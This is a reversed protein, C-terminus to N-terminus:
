GVFVQVLPSNRDVIKFFAFNVITTPINVFDEPSLLLTADRSGLLIRKNKSKGSFRSRSMSISITPGIIAHEVIEPLPLGTGHLKGPAILRHAIM